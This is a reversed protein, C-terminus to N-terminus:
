YVFGEDVEPHPSLDNVICYRIYDEAIKDYSRRYMATDSIKDLYKKIHEPVARKFANGSKLYLSKVALRLNEKTGKLLVSVKDGTFKLSVLVVSYNALFKELQDLTFNSVCDRDLEASANVKM